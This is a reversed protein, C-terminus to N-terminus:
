DKNIIQNIMTESHSSYTSNPYNDVVKKFFLLANANDKTEKYCVGIQYFVWPTLKLNTDMESALKLKPLAEQYKGEKYLRDGEDYITWIANKSLDQWLKDYKIKTENEFAMNKMNLLLAAAKENNGDKLHKEAENLMALIEYKSKYYDLETKTSGLKIEINKFEEYSISSKEDITNSQKSAEGAKNKSTSIFAFFNGDKINENNNSMVWNTMIIATAAVIVLSLSIIIKRPSSRQIISKNSRNIFDTNMNNFSDTTIDMGKKNELRAIYEEALDKYIEYQALRKFVKEAKRQKNENVYCLGLLKMAESFGSNYSLARKLDKIALSLENTRVEAIAINYLIISKRINDNIRFPNSDMEKLNIPQVKKMELNFDNM